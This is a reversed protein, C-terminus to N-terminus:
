AAASCPPAEAPVPAPRVAALIRGATPARWGGRNRSGGERSTVPGPISLTPRPESCEAAGLFAAGAGLSRLKRDLREYGRRLVAAGGLRSTGDAALAAILLAAASRLDPAHVEAPRLPGGAVAATGGAREVTGGFRALPALHAVRGPFVGDTLLSTGDAALALAALQPLVDTPLGPFASAFAEAARPRGGAVVRVGRNPGAGRDSVTAGCDRLLKAVAAVHAPRVGDLVVRGGTAAAAIMWTAAEIRDGPLVAAPSEHPVPRLAPVGVVHLTDTGLGSVRAGAANLFRGLAVVEPERAAGRLVSVGRAVAAACLLNATGTVTPVPPLGPAPPASLDFQAGRLEDVSVTVGDGDRAVTAGLAELGALHRDIPRPGLDCGGVRALRVAGGGNRSLRGLLPGLLCVAGRMAGVAAADPELPSSPFRIAAADVTVAGGGDAGGGPAVRAGLGRLLGRMLRTDTLDPVRRLTVPGDILLTAALMPLAANKAGGVRVRGRLPTGGRVELTEEGRGGM